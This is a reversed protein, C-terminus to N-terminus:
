PLVYFWTWFCVSQDACELDLGSGCAHATSAVEFLYLDQSCIGRECRRSCICMICYAPPGSCGSVLQYKILPMACSLTLM